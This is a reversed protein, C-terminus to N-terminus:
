TRRGGSTKTLSGGSLRRVDSDYIGEVEAAVGRGPTKVQWLPPPSPAHASVVDCQKFPLPKRFKAADIARKLRDSFFLAGELIPDMWIDAGKAASARVVLRAKGISRARYGTEPAGSAAWSETLEPVFCSKSSIWNFIYWRGELPTEHDKDLIPVEHFRTDGLDFQEMLTKARESVVRLSVAHFFDPLGAKPLKKRTEDVFLHDPLESREVPEGRRLRGLIAAHAYKVEMPAFDDYPYGVALSHTDCSRAFASEWIIPLDAKATESPITM